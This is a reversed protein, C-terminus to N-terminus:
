STCNIEFHDQGGEANLVLGTHGISAVAVGDVKVVLPTAAQAIGACMNFDGMTAVDTVGYAIGEPNSDAGYLMDAM